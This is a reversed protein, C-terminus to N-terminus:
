SQCGGHNPGRWSCEASEKSKSVQFGSQGFVLKVFETYTSTLYSLGQTEFCHGQTESIGKRGEKGM